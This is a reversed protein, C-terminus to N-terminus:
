HGTSKRSRRRARRSRKNRSRREKQGSQNQAGKKDEPVRNVQAFVRRAAEVNDKTVEVNDTHVMVKRLAEVTLGEHNRYIGQWVLRTMGTVTALIKAGQGSFAQLGSAQKAAVGFLITKDEESADEPCSKIITSIHEKRVWDDLESIDDDGFPSFRYEIEKIEGDEGVVKLKLLAPAGIM